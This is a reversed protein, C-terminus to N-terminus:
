VGQNVSMTVWAAARYLVSSILVQSKLFLAASSADKIESPRATFLGGVYIISM